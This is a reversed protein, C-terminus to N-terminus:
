EPAGLGTFCQFVDVGRPRFLEKSLVEDSSVAAVSRCCCCLMNVSRCLLLRSGLSMLKRVVEGSSDWASRCCVPPNQDLCDVHTYLWTKGPMERAPHEHVGFVVYSCRVAAQELAKTNGKWAM